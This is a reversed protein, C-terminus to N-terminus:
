RTWWRGLNPNYYRAGIRYLGGSGASQRYEGTYQWPNTVSGTTSRTQGYPDYKYTQALNGASDTLGVVGLNDTLYYHRTSGAKQGILTGQNDRTWSTTTGERTLGLLTNHQATGAVSTRETQDPGAYAFSTASGGPPTFSTTQDRINYALALGASNATMNGNADHTYTLAGSPPSGCANSSSGTYGWCLQNADDYAYSTTSNVVQETM